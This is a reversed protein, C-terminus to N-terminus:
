TRVAIGAAPKERRHDHERYEHTSLLYLSIPDGFNSGISTGTVSKLDITEGTNLGRLSTLTQLRASHQTRVISSLLISPFIHRFPKPKTSPQLSSRLSQIPHVTSNYIRFEFSIYIQWVTKPEKEQLANFLFSSAMKIESHCSIFYCFQYLFSALVPSSSTFRSFTGVEKPTTTM